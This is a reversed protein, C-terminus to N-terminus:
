NHEILQNLDKITFPLSKFGTASERSTIDAKEVLTILSEYKNGLLEVWGCLCAELGFRLFLGGVYNVLLKGDFVESVLFANEGKIKNKICIEGIV